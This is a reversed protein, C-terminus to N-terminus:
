GSPGIRDKWAKKLALVFAGEDAALRKKVERWVGACDKYPVGALGHITIDLERKNEDTVVIGAESFVRQLHRYYCTV